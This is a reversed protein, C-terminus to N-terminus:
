NAVKHRVMPTTEDIRSFTYGNNKGYHIIDRIANLTKYNNEYDHMLVINTKSHSLGNVVNRYVENETSAEGADGSGVNWDYYRYGRNIVESTLYTMIGPSYKRSVTNSGGGPFRIIMSKVGTIREVKDSILQLDNFYAASSAYVSAYNHSYSHLAITHGEEYARKILYDLNSSHNIVFFTASVGEEKLIDLLTPTITASPGDDFTLYIVGNGKGTSPREVVKVTRTVATENGSTDFVKYTLINTGVKTSDVNGDVIVQSTLDGDCNDSAQYGDEKYTQGLYMTENLSGVLTIIPAEQDQRLLTRKVEAKNHSSDEVIYHVVDNKEDIEIKVKSTLDQDYNDTVQYGIEEFKKNPCMTIKDGGTLTIVPAEEDVVLVKRTAKLKLIGCQYTYMIPYTGLKTSDVTGSVKVHPDEKWLYSAYYGPDMYAQQYSIKMIADGKLVIRPRFWYIILFLLLAALVLIAIFLIQRKKSDLLKRKIKEIGEIDDTEEVISFQTDFYTDELKKKKM